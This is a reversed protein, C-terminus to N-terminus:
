WDLALIGQAIPRLDAGGSWLYLATTPEASADTTAVLALTTGTPAAAADLTQATAEEDANVAHLQPLQWQGLTAASAVDFVEIAGGYATLGDDADGTGWNVVSPVALTGDALFTPNGAEGHVFTDAPQFVPASDLTTTTGPTVVLLDMAPVASDQFGTAVYLTSGDPSWAPQDIRRPCGGCSDDPVTTEAGTALDLVHLARYEEDPNTPHKGVYALRTGDPSVSPVRGQAVTESTGDALTVRVVDPRIGGTERTLYVTSRDPALSLPGAWAADSAITRVTAGTAPDIEVLAGATTLAVITSTAATPTPTPTASADPSPPRSPETADTTPQAADDSPRGLALWAAAVVAVVAVVVAVM